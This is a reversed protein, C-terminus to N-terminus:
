TGNMDKIVKGAFMKNEKDSLHNTTRVHEKEYDYPGSNILYTRWVLIINMKINQTIKM